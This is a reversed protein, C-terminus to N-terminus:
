GTHRLTHHILEKGNALGVVYRDLRLGNYLMMIQDMKSSVALPRASGLLKGGWDDGAGVVLSRSCWTRVKPDMYAMQAGSQIYFRYETSAQM